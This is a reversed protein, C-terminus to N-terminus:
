FSRKSPTLVMVRCYLGILCLELLRDAVEDCTCVCEKAGGRQSMHTGITILSNAIYSWCLGLKTFQTSHVPPHVVNHTFIPAELGFPDHKFVNPRCSVNTRTHTILVDWLVMVADCTFKRLHYPVTKFVQRQADTGAPCSGRENSM